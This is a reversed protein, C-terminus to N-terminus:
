LDILCSRLLNLSCHCRTQTQWNFPKLDCFMVGFDVPLSVASSPLDTVKWTRESPSLLFFLGNFFLETVECSHERPAEFVQKVTSHYKVEEFLTSNSFFGLVRWNYSELHCQNMNIRSKAPIWWSNVTLKLFPSPHVISYCHRCTRSQLQCEAAVHRAALLLLPGIMLLCVLIFLM